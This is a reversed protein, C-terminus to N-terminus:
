LREAIRALVGFFVFTGPIGIFAWWFEPMKILEMFMM